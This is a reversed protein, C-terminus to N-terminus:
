PCADRGGAVDLELHLNLLEHWEEDIVVLVQQSLIDAVAHRLILLVEVTVKVLRQQLTFTFEDRVIWAIDENEDIFFGLDDLFLDATLEEDLENSYAISAYLANRALQLSELGLEHM